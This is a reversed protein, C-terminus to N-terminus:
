YHLVAEGGKRLRMKRTKRMSYTLWITKTKSSKFCFSSNLSSAPPSLPLGGSLVNKPKNQM